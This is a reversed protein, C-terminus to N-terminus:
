KKKRRDRKRKEIVPQPALPQRVPEELVKGCVTYRYKRMGIYVCHIYCNCPM